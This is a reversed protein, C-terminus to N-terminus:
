KQRRIREDECITCYGFIQKTGNPPQRHFQSKRNYEVWPGNHVKL